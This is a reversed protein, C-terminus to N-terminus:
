FCFILVKELQIRYRHIVQYSDKSELITQNCPLLRLATKLGEECFYSRLNSLCCIHSLFRCNASPNKMHDTILFQLTMSCTKTSEAQIRGTECCEQANDRFADLVYM